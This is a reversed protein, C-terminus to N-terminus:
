GRSHETYRNQLLELYDLALEKADDPLYDVIEAARRAQTSRDDDSVVYGLENMMDNIDMELVLALARRFPLEEIPPKNRGTEWHGVRAPSTEQGLDSLKNALQLQSLGLAQRKNKLFEPFKM